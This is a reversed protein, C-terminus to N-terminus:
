YLARWLYFTAYAEWNEWPVALELMEAKTPKREMGKVHRIANMLGVDAIPFASPYRLSRMLVYNATWPGIGRIKVLEREIKKFDDLALLKKKSLKGSAMLRAIGVLYESKRTTMKIAAMDGPELQAIKQYTPFVWYAKGKYVMGDGFKEVFQRKLTYAFKLNIQQGLVGWCLAEFLDPIGVIRLGYLNEISQKLLPDTRALEYFPTLDRDLDFWERIYTVIAAKKAETTPRAGVLFNVALHKSDPASIQALLHDEGIAIVWTIVKDKIDFMCENPNRQLYGLNPIFDFEVPTPILLRKNSEDWHAAHDMNHKKTMLNM